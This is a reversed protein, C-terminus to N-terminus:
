KEGPPAAMPQPVTQGFTQPAFGILPSQEQMEVDAVMNDLPSNEHTQALPGHEFASPQHSFQHPAFSSAHQPQPQMAFPNQNAFHHAGIAHPNFGHIQNAPAVQGAHM